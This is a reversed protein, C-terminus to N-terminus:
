TATFKGLGYFGPDGVPLGQVLFAREVGSLKYGAGGVNLKQLEHNGSERTLTRLNLQEERSRPENTGRIEGKTHMQISLDKMHVDGYSNRDKNSKCNSTIACGIEYGLVGLRSSMKYPDEGAKQYDGSSWLEQIQQALAEIRENSAELQAIREDLEGLQRQLEQEQQPDLDDLLQGSIRARESITDLIRQNNTDIGDKVWGGFEGGNVGDRGLLIEMSPENIESNVTGWGGILGSAGGVGGPNVGVSFMIPEYKVFVERDDGNEDKVTIRHLGEQSLTQMAENQERTMMRENENQGKLGLGQLVPRIPDPTLHSVWLNRLVIPEDESGLGQKLQNQVGPNTKVHTELMDRARSLNVTKRKGEDEIEYACNVGTRLQCFLTKGNEDRLESQWMNVPIDSEGDHCCVGKGDEPGNTTGLQNHPTLISKFTRNQGDIVLQVDKEIVNWDQDESLAKVHNHEIEHSLDKSSIGEFGAQKLREGLLKTMMKSESMYPSTMPPMRGDRIERDMTNLARAFTNMGLFKFMKEFFGPKKKGMAETLGDKDLPETSTFQTGSQGSLRLHRAELDEKTTHL